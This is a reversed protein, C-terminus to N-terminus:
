EADPGTPQSTGSASPAAAFELVVKRQNGDATLSEDVLVRSGASYERLYRELADCLAHSAKSSNRALALTKGWLWPRLAIHAAFAGSRFKGEPTVYRDMAPLEFDAGDSIAKIAGFAVGRAQAGQAVAAAEMDVARAGYAQRLRIKQQADAITATSVMNGDGSGTDSRASDGANIVQRPEFVDGVNLSGDLAGAFGV